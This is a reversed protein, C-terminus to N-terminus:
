PKSAKEGKRKKGGGLCHRAKLAEMVFRVELDM